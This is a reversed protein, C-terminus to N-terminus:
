LAIDNEFCEESNDLTLTRQAENGGCDQNQDLRQLSQLLTIPEEEEEHVLNEVFELTTADQPSIGYEFQNYGGATPPNPKSSSLRKKMRQELNSLRRRARKTETRTIVSDKLLWWFSKGPNEEKSKNYRPCTYILFNFFGQLPNLIQAPILLGHNRTNRSVRFLFGFVWVLIFAGVYLLAQKTAARYQKELNICPSIIHNGFRFQHKMVIWRKRVFLVVQLMCISIIVCTVCLVSGSFIWSLLYSHQGRICTIQDSADCNMPYVGIWCGNPNSNISGLSVSVIAGIIPYGLSVAHMWPELKKALFEDSKSYKIVMLYNISLSAIYLPQIMGLQLFFGQTNCTARNGSSFYLDPTNKPAAFTSFMKAMSYTIDAASLCAMIRFYPTTFRRDPDSLINYLIASAGFISVVGPAIPLFTLATDLSTAM